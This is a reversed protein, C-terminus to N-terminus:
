VLKSLYHKSPRYIPGPADAKPMQDMWFAKRQKSFGGTTVRPALFHSGPETSYQAPGPSETTQWYLGKKSSSFSVGQNNKLFESDLDANQEGVLKRIKNAETSSVVRSLFSNHHSYNSLERSKRRSKNHSLLDQSVQEQIDNKQKRNVELYKATSSQASVREESEPRKPLLSGAKPQTKPQPKQKIDGGTASLSQQIRKLEELQKSIRQSSDELNTNRAPETGGVQGQLVAKVLEESQWISNVMSTVIKLLNVRFIDSNIWFQELIGIDENRSRAIKDLESFTYQSEQNFMELFVSRLKEEYGMKKIKDSITKLDGLEAIEASTLEERYGYQESRQNSM